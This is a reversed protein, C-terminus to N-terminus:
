KSRRRRGLLLVIALLAVVAGAARAILQKPVFSGVDLVDAAPRNVPSAGPGGAGGAGAGGAGAEAGGAGTGAIQEELRRSFEDMVRKGVDEIVGRGFQAQPGTIALDTEALVKTGGETQELRNRVTALATGQGKAERASLAIVATHAQEDIERLEARGRYEVTMPGIKLRMAGDYVNEQDTATITAGPLCKAVQEMDLLHRWVSDLEAAVTFENQLIM